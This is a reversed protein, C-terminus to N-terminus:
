STFTNSPSAILSWGGGCVRMPQDSGSPQYASVCLRSLCLSLSLSLVPLSVSLLHFHQLAFCDFVVRWRVRADAPRQRFTLCVCVSVLSLSLSLSHTNTHIHTHTHTNQVAYCDFIVRRRVRADAPRQGFTVCVCVCVLSRSPSAILSWGAGCLCIPQDRGSCTACLRVFTL